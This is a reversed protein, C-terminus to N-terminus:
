EEEVPEKEEAQVQPVPPFPDKCEVILNKDTRIMETEDEPSPEMAYEMFETQIPLREQPVYEANLFRVGDGVYINVFKQSGMQYVTNAGPWLKNRISIMKYPHQRSAKPQRLCWVNTGEVPAFISDTDETIKRCIDKMEEETEDVAPEAEEEEETEPKVWKTWRGEKRMHPRQHVWSELNAMDEGVSYEENRIIALPDENEEDKIFLGEPALHTASSIRAIICRLFMAEDGPFKWRGGVNADFQGRLHVHCKSSINVLDPTAYPLQTWQGAELNNCAFYVYSNVGQGPDEMKEPKNEQPEPYEELKTEVIWYDNEIGRIQGFFRPEIITPFQNVLEYCACQLKWWHDGFDIGAWQLLQVNEMIDAVKNMEVVVLDEENEQEAAQPKPPGSKELVSSIYCKVEEIEKENLIVQKNKTSNKKVLSSVYEFNDYGNTKTEVIQEIVEILHDYASNGNADKKQLEDKAEQFMRTELQLM